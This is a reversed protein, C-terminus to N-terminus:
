PQAFSNTTSGTFINDSHYDFSVALFYGDDKGLKPKIIITGTSIDGDSRDGGPNFSIDLLIDGDDKGLKPKIVITGTSIDGDSRDGGPNFLNHDITGVTYNYLGIKETLDQKEGLRFLSFDISSVRDSSVDLKHADFNDGILGYSDSGISINSKSFLSLSDGTFISVQPLIPDPILQVLTFELM